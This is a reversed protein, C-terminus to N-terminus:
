LTGRTSLMYNSSTKTKDLRFFREKKIPSNSENVSLIIMLITSNVGAM